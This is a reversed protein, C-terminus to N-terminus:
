CRRWSRASWSAPTTSRPSSRRGTPVGTGTVYSQLGAASSPDSYEPRLTLTGSVTGGAEGILSTVQDVTEPPVDEHHRRAPRQQRHPHRRRPRPRRGRRLRRLHGAPGAAAPHPGRALAQGEGPRTVQNKIDALIPENLATTGIVIGLAVALFVAILSVLHYRFDIM